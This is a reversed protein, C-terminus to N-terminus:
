KKSFFQPTKVTTNTLTIRISTAMQTQETASRTMAQTSGCHTIRSSNTAMGSHKKDVPAFEMQINTSPNKIKRM